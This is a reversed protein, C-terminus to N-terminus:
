VLPRRISWRKLIAERFLTKPEMSRGAPDTEGRPLGSQLANLGATCVTFLRPKHSLSVLNVFMETRAYLTAAVQRNAAHVAAAPQLM